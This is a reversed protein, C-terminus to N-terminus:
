YLILYRCNIFGQYRKFDTRYDPILGNNRLATLIDMINRQERAKIEARKAETLDYGHGEYWECVTYRLEGKKSNFYVTFNGIHKIAKKIETAQEKTM